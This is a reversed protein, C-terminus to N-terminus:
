QGEERDILRAEARDLYPLELKIDFGYPLNCFLFSPYM